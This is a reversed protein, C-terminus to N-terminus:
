DAGLRYFRPPLEDERHICRGGSPRYLKAMRLWYGHLDPLATGDSMKVDSDEALMICGAYAASQINGYTELLWTLWSDDNATCACDSGCEYTPPKLLLRLAEIDSSDFLKKQNDM